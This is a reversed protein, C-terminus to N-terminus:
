AALIEGALREIRGVIGLEDRSHGRSSLAILLSKRVAGAIHADSREPVMQAFLHAASFNFTTHELIRSPSAAEAVIRVELRRIKTSRERFRTDLVSGAVAM